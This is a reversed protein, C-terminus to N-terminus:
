WPYDEAIPDVSLFKGIRPDYIRMGYDLQNGEGKVENDSEKGNFGYRYNSSNFIRGPMQMGFPYYDNATLVNVEYYDITGNNGVDIGTRSDSITSCTNVNIII